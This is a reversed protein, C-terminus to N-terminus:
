AVSPFDSCGSVALCLPFFTFDNPPFAKDEGGGGMRKRGRGMRGGMKRRKRRMFWVKCRGIRTEKSERRVLINLFLSSVLQPINAKNKNFVGSNVSFAFNM